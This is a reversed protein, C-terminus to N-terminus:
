YHALCSWWRAYIPDSATKQITCSQWHWSTQNITNSWQPLVGLCLNFHPSMSGKCTQNRGWGLPKNSTMFTTMFYCLKVTHLQWHDHQRLEEQMELEWHLLVWFVQKMTTSVFHMSVSYSFVILVCTRRCIVHSGHGYGACQAVVPGDVISISSNKPV